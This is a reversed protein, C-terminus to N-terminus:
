CSRRGPGPARGGTEPRLRGPVALSEHRRGEGPGPDAVVRGADSLPLAVEGAEHWNRRGTSGTMWKPPSRTASGPSSRHVAERFESAGTNVTGHRALWPRGVVEDYRNLAHDLTRLIDRQLRTNEAGQALLVDTEGGDAENDRARQERQEETPERLRSELRAELRGVHSRLQEVANWLLRDRDAALVSGNPCLGSGISAFLLDVGARAMEVDGAERGDHERFGPGAGPTLNDIIDATGAAIGDSSDIDSMAANGYLDIVTSGRREPVPDCDSM